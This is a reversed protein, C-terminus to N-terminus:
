MTDHARRRSLCASTGTTPLLAIRMKLRKNDVPARKKPDKGPCVAFGDPATCRGVLHSELYDAALRAGDDPHAKEVFELFTM